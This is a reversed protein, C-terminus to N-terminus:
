LRMLNYMASPVNSETMLSTEEQFPAARTSDMTATFAEHTRRTLDRRHVHQHRMALQAISFSPISHVPARRSLDVPEVVSVVEQTIKLIEFCLTLARFLTPLINPPSVKM